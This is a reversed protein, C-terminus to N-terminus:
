QMDSTAMEMQAKFPRRTAEVYSTLDSYKEKVTDIAKNVAMKGMAWKALMLLSVCALLGLLWSAWDPFGSSEPAMTTTTYVVKEDKNRTTWQTQPAQTEISSGCSNVSIMQAPTGIIYSTM